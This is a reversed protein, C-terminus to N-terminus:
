STRWAEEPLLQMNAAQRRGWTLWFFGVIVCIICEVYYGDVVTDCQGGDSLCEKEQVENNCVETVSSGVCNKLTLSDVLWLAVTSPWNGGLNSLTNLLTMYTGGIRPDSIKAFFSMVAVFMSYVTVQHLAYVVLIMVYYHYPYEGAAIRMSPTIWVVLPFIIAFMLRYPYAKILIALPTPGSTYRSIFLPMFIQLPIMPIALMAMKDKPVGKENLKLGTVADPASFGIKITLLFLILGQMAPKRMIRILIRFTDTVSRNHDEDNSMACPRESKLVWVLSTTVLYVIGWFYMFESLTVLGTPQPVARLYHNCFDASDFALFIVFGIFYGATQGICNCTSAHGVNRRALMTLAWGDVAIDQTAALFCLMFFVATIAYVNPQSGVEGFLRDSTFSLLLMFGGILYQIPVLWSKRQGMRSNYFSDVIPAWLLKLSFPWHVFSFIAQQKYTIHRNQLIMPIAGALGLPIGQLVYLFILLAINGRDGKLGSHADDPEAQEDLDVIDIAPM